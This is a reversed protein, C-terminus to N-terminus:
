GLRSCSEQRLFPRGRERILRGVESLTTSGTVEVRESGKSVAGAWVVAMALGINRNENGGCRQLSRFRKSKKVPTPGSMSWIIKM